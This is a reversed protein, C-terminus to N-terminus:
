PETGPPSGVFEELRQRVRRYYAGFGSPTFSEQTQNGLLVHIHAPELGQIRAIQESYFCLQLVYAPKAHRALKTDLAECSWAGLASPTEVRMLFDAVGRWGDGVLAAQYVVDVGTGLAALTEERAREWDGDELEIEAVTLGRERLQQLHAREHELGKRFVLEAQDGPPPPAPLEDRAVQLSLATLHECALYATVDSPSLWTRGDLLKMGSTDARRRDRSVDARRAACRQRGAPAG